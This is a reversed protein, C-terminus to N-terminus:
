VIQAATGKLQLPDVVNNLNIANVYLDDTATVLNAAAGAVTLSGVKSGVTGIDGVFATTTASDAITIAGNGTAAAAIAGTVTHAGATLALTGAAGNLTITTASINGTATLTKLTAVDMEALSFTSGINGPLLSTENVELSGNVAWSGDM